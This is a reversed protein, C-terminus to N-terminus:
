MVYTEDNLFRLSLYVSRQIAARMAKKAEHGIKGSM